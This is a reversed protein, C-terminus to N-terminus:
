RGAPRGTEYDVNGSQSLDTSDPALAWYGSTGVDIANGTLTLKAKSAQFAYNMGVQRTGLLISRRISVDPHSAGGEPFVFATFAGPIRGRDARFDFMDETIMTRGGYVHFAELHAGVVGDVGPALIHDRESEFDGFVSAYDNPAGRWRTHDTHLRSGAAVVVGAEFLPKLATEDLECYSCSVAAGPKDSGVAMLRFLGPNAFRADVLSLSAPGDVDVEYGTFDWGVLRVSATVRVVHGQVSVGRPCAAPCARPTRRPPQSPGSELPALKEVAGLGATSVGLSSPMAAAAGWSPWAAALAWAACGVRLIM